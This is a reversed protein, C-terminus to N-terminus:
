SRAAPSAAGYIKQLKEKTSKVILILSGHSDTFRLFYIEEDSFFYGWWTGDAVVDVTDPEPLLARVEAMTMGVKIKDDRFAPSVERPPYSEQLRRTIQMNHLTCATLLFPLTSLLCLLRRVAHTM